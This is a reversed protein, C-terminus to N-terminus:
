LRVPFKLNAFCMSCPLILYIGNLLNLSHHPYLSCVSVIEQKMSILLLIWLSAPMEAPEPFIPLIHLLHLHPPGPPVHWSPPSTSAAFPGATDHSSVSNKLTNFIDCQQGRSRSWPLICAFQGWDKSKKNPGYLSILSQELGWYLAHLGRVERPDQSPSAPHLLIGAIWSGVVWGLQLRILKNFHRHM